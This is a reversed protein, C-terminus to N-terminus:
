QTTHSSTSINSRGYRLFRSLVPQPIYKVALCYVKKVLYDRMLSAWISFQKVIEHLRVTEGKRQKLILTNLSHEPSFVSAQSVSWVPVTEKPNTAELAVSAAEAWRDSLSWPVGLRNAIGKIMVTARGLLVFEQSFEFVKNIPSNANLEEGAYGGPLV